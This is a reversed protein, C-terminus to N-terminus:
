FQTTMWVMTVFSRLRSPVCELIWRGIPSDCEVCMDIQRDSTITKSRWQAVTKKQLSPPGELLTRRAVARLVM